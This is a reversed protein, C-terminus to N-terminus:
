KDEDNEEEDDEGDPIEEENWWDDEDDNYDDEIFVTRLGICEGDENFIAQTNYSGDIVNFIHTNFGIVCLTNETVEVFKPLLKWGSDPYPTDSHFLIIDKLRKANYANPIVYWVGNKVGDFQTNSIIIEDDVQLLLM